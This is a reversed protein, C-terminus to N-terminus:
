SFAIGYKSNSQNIYKSVYYSAGLEKEYPIHKVFRNDILRKDKFYKHVAEKVGDGEILLHNHTQYGNTTHEMVWFLKFKIGIGKLYTELRLMLSENRKPKIDHKFTITSFYDWNEKSLWSGYEAPM